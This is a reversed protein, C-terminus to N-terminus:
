SKPQYEAPSTPNFNVPGDAFSSIVRKMELKKRKSGSLKVYKPECKLESFSFLYPGEFRFYLLRWRTDWLPNQKLYM